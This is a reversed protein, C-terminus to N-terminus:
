PAGAAHRYRARMGTKDSANSAPLGGGAPGTCIHAVGEDGDHPLVVATWLNTPRCFMAEWGGPPPWPPPAGPFRLVMKAFEIDIEGHYNHFLDWIMKNRPASYAGYGGHLGVFEGEKTVKMEASLYNNTSFMFDREGFDGPQRVAQVATTKEVVCANGQDPYAVIVLVLVFLTGGVLIHNVKM